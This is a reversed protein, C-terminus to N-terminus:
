NYVVRNGLYRRWNSFFKYESGRTASTLPNLRLNTQLESIYLQNVDCTLVFISNPDNHSPWSINDALYQKFTSVYYLPKLPHYCACINLSLSFDLTVTFWLDETNQITQVDGQRAHACVGGERQELRNKRLCFRSIVLADDAHKTKLWTETIIIIDAAISNADTIIQQLANATVLSTSNRIYICPM